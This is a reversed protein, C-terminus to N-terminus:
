RKRTFHDGTVEYLKGDVEVTRPGRAVDGRASAKSEVCVAGTALLAVVGLVAFTSTTRRSMMVSGTNM